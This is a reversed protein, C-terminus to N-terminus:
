IDNQSIGDEADHLPALYPHSCKGTSGLYAKQLAAEINPKHHSTIYANPVGEWM